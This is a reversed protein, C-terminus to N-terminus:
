YEFHLSFVVMRSNIQDIISSYKLSPDPVHLNSLGYSFKIEPSLTFYPLFFNFGIGGEVGFDSSKFKIDNSAGAVNANSTLYLDYKIGGLMYVRFNDIRDSNFKLSFPFSVINAPLTKRQYVPEGPQPYNIVYDFYRAQGIIFQPNARVQFRDSLRATAALGIFIGGSSGPEAVLVSDDNIFKKSRTIHLYSSTYGLTAGFYYVKDDHDPRFLEVRQALLNNIFCVSIIFFLILGKNRLLHYM